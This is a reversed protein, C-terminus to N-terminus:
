KHAISVRKRVIGAPAAGLGGQEPEDDEVQLGRSGASLAGPADDKPKKGPKSPSAPKSAPKASKKVAAADANVMSFLESSAIPKASAYVLVDEQGTKNDLIIWKEPNQPFRLPTAPTLQQDGSKPFVVEPGGSTSALAIYVYSPQDVKVKVAMRDGSRLADGPQLEFSGKSSSIAEIAVDVTPPKAPEATVPTPQPQPNEIVPEPKKQPGGCGAPALAGLLAAVALSVRFSTQRLM